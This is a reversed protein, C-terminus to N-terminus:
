LEFSYDNSVVVTQILRSICLGLTSASFASSNLPIFVGMCLVFESTLM